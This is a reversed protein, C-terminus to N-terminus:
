MWSNLSSGKAKEICLSSAEKVEGELDGEGSKSTRGDMDSRGWIICLETQEQNCGPDKVTQQKTIYLHLYDLYTKEISALGLRNKHQALTICGGHCGYSFICEKM